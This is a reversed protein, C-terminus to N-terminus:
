AEIVQGRYVRKPRTSKAAPKANNPETSSPAQVKSEIVHTSDLLPEDLERNQEVFERILLKCISDKSQEFAINLEDILEPNALKISPKQHSPVRRRIERVLDIMHKNFRM